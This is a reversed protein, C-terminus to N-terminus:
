LLFAVLGAAAALFASGKIAAGAGTVPGSPTPQSGTPIGASPTSSTSPTPCPVEVTEYIITPIVTTISTKITKVSTSPCEPEPAVTVLTSTPYPPYSGTISPVFSDTPEPEEEEPEDTPEPEETPEAEDIPCVTTSVAVTETVISTADAPCDTVTEPCDTVTRTITDYITKTTVPFVSSTVAGSTAPCDPVEPPCSTITYYETSYVTSQAEEEHAGAMVAGALAVTAIAFRM